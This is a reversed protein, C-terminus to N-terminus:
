SLVGIIWSVVLRRTLITVGREAYAGPEATM